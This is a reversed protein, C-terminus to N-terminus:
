GPTAPPTPEPSQTTLPCFSNLAALAQPLEPENKMRLYTAVYMMSPGDFMVQEGKLAVGNLTETFTRYSAPAGCASTQQTVVGKKNGGSADSQDNADDTSQESIWIAHKPPYSQM